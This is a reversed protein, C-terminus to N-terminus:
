KEDVEYKEKIRNIIDNMKDYDEETCSSYEIIEDGIEEAITDLFKKVKKNRNIENTYKKELTKNKDSKGLYVYWENNEFLLPIGRDNNHTPCNPYIIKATPVHHKIDNTSRIMLKINKKNEYAYFYENLVEDYTNFGCFIIDIGGEKIERKLDFNDINIIM